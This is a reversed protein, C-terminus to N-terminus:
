FTPSQFPVTGSSNSPQASFALTTRRREERRLLPRARRSGSAFSRSRRASLSTGTATSELARSRGFAARSRRKTGSLEVNAEETHRLAQMKGWFKEVRESLSFSHKCQFNTGVNGKGKTSNKANPPQFALRLNVNSPQLLVLLICLWTTCFSVGCSPKQSNLLFAVTFTSDRILKFAASLIGTNQAKTRRTEAAAASQLERLCLLPKTACQANRRDEGFRPEQWFGGAVLRKARSLGLNADEAHWLALM